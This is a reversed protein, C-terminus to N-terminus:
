IQSRRKHTRNRTGAHASPSPSAKPPGQSHVGAERSHVGAEPPARAREQSNPEARSLGLSQKATSAGRLLFIMMM